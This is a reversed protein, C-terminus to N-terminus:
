QRLRPEHGFGARRNSDCCDVGDYAQGRRSQTLVHRRGRKIWTLEPKRCRGRTPPRPGLISAVLRRRKARCHLLMQKIAKRSARRAPNNARPEQPLLMTAPAITPTTASGSAIAKAIADPARGSCPSYVAMTLPRATESNPPVRTWIAPGVPAKMAMRDPMVAFYPMPPRCTAVKMAPAIRTSIPRARRPATMLNMGAGTMAPKVAPMPTM